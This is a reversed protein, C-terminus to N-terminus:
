ASTTAKAHHEQIASKSPARRTGKTIQQLQRQSCSAQGMLHTAVHQPRSYIGPKCTSTGATHVGGVHIRQQQTHSCVAPVNSLVPPGQGSLGLSSNQLPQCHDSGRSLRGFMVALLCLQLLTYYVATRLSHAGPQVSSAGKLEDMNHSPMGAQFHASMSQCHTLIIFALLPQHRTSVKCVVAAKSM